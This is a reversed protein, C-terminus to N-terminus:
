MLMISQVPVFGSTTVITQYHKIGGRSLTEMVYQSEIAVRYLDRDGFDSGIGEADSSSSSLFIRSPIRKAGDYMDADKKPRATWLYLVKNMRQKVRGPHRIEEILNFYDMELRPDHFFDTDGAEIVDDIHGDMSLAFTASRGVYVDASSVPEFEYYTESPLIAVVRVPSNHWQPISDIAHAVKSRLKQMNIETRDLISRIDAEYQDETDGRSPDVLRGVYKRLWSEFRTMDVQIGSATIIYQIM